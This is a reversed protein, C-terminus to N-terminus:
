ARRVGGRGGDGVIAAAKIEERRRRLRLMAAEDERVAREELWREVETRTDFTAEPAVIPIGGAELIDMLELTAEPSSGGEQHLTASETQLAWLVGAKSRQVEGGGAPRIVTMGPKDGRPQTRKGALDTRAHGLARMIAWMAAGGQSKVAEMELHLRTRVRDVDDAGTQM